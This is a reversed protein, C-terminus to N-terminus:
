GAHDLGRTNIRRIENFVTRGERAQHRELEKLERRSQRGQRKKRIAGELSETGFSEEQGARTDVWRTTGM